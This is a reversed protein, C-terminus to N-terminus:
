FLSMVASQSLAVPFQLMTMWSKGMWSSVGQLAPSQTESLFGVRLEPPDGTRQQRGKRGTGGKQTIHVQRFFRGSPFPLQNCLSGGKELFYFRLATFRTGVVVRSLPLMGLTAATTSNPMMLTAHRTHAMHFAM